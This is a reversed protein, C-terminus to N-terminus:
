FIKFFGPQLDQWVRSPDYKRSIEQLKLLNQEGYGKFVNQEASAYNQYIYPHGLNQAYATTNARSIVSRAASMVRDDNQTDIWSIDIQMLTLPGDRDNFGLSNGGYKSFHSTIATTIPQFVLSSVLDPITKIQDIEEIFMASIDSMLTPSNKFTMTWYTQRFGYPNSANLESAAGAMSTLRLTSAVVKSPQTFNQFILPNPEPETYQLDTVIAWSGFSQSYAYVFIAAAKPDAAINLDSFATNFQRALDTTYLYINSGAWLDSQPFTVLDFQTVVGFNNGGGRLAWYLDPFSKFNVDNITGDAFVVQFNNVNDCAWGWHGSFFSIGGGLTLGGVGVDSVRGGIVSLSQPDLFSYVDGWSNGPGVAIQKRDGAVSLQNLQKLDLTVGGNINSAGSFAAHGGSKIAFQCNTVRFSLIATSVDVVSTPVVRCVPDSATQQLSWYRSGDLKYRSSGRFSTSGSITSNLFACALSCKVPPGAASVGVASVGHNRQYAAIQDEIEALTFPQQATVKLGLLSIFCLLSIWM